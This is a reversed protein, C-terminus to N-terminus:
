VRKLPGGFGRCLARPYGASERSPRLRELGGALRGSCDAMQAFSDRLAAATTHVARQPTAAERALEWIEGPTAMFRLGEQSATAAIVAGNLTLLKAQQEARETGFSLSLISLHREQAAGIATLVSKASPPCASIEAKGQRETRLFLDL